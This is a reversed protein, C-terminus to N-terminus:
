KSKKESNGKWPSDGAVYRPLGGAPEVTEDNVYAALGLEAILGATMSIEGDWQVAATRTQVADWWPPRDGVAHWGPQELAEPWGTCLADDFEQTLVGADVNFAALYYADGRSRTMTVIRRPAPTLQRQSGLAMALSSAVPAMRAGSGFAIGQAVAAAIRVGTFSGPGAAFAIVDFESRRVGARVCLADIMTLVVENHLREVKRTDEILVGNRQVAVSCLARSTELALITTM